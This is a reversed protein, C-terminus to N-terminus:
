IMYKGNVIAKLTILHFQTAALPRATLNINRNCEKKKENCRRNQVQCLRTKGMVWSVEVNCGTAIYQM